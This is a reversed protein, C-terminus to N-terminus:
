IFIETSPIKSVESLGELYKPKTLEDSKDLDLWRNITYYSVGFKLAMEMRVKSSKAKQKFKKTFTM